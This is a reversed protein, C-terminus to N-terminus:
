ATQTPTLGSTERDVVTTANQTVRTVIISGQDISGSIRVQRVTIMDGLFPLVVDQNHVDSM